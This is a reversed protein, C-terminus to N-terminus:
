SRMTCSISATPIPQLVTGCCRARPSVLSCRSVRSDRHLAPSSLALTRRWRQRWDRTNRLWSRLRSSTVSRSWRRSWGVRGIDRWSAKPNSYSAILPPAGVSVGVLFYVLYHLIRKSQIYFPGLATWSMPNFVLALPVYAFASAAVLTAFLLLPEKPQMALVRQAQNPAIAFLLAVVADFVLLVWLFWAPGSPWEGLALWQHVFGNHDSTQLYAPYYALPAIIAAAALFPIALRLLRDCMFKAGGKREMRRWVFLGSIFFMLSMFFVDNFAVILDFPSWQSSDTIPFAEWSRPRADLTARPQPVHIYALLSHHLVVLTVIFGRLYGVAYNYNM